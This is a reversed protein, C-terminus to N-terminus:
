FGFDYLVLTPYDFLSLTFLFFLACRTNDPPQILMYDQKLHAYFFKM